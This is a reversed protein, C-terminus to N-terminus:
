NVTIEELVERVPVLGRHTTAWGRTEVRKRGGGSFSGVEIRHLDALDLQATSCLLGAWRAERLATRARQCIRFTVSRLRM